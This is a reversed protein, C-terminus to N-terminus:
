FHFGHGYNDKCPAMNYYIMCIKRKRHMKYVHANKSM